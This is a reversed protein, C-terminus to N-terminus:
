TAMSRFVPTSTLNLRNEVRKNRCKIGRFREKLHAESSDADDVVSGDAFTFARSCVWCHAPCTRTRELHHASRVPTVRQSRPRLQFENAEDRNSHIVDSLVRFRHFDNGM